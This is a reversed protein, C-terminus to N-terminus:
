TVISTQGREWDSEYFSAPLGEAENNKVLHDNLAAELPSNQPGSPGTTIAPPRPGRLGIACIPRELPPVCSLM